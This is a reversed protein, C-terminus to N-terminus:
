RRVNAHHWPEDSPVEPGRLRDIADPHGQWPAARGRGFQLRRPYRRGSESRIVEFVLGAAEPGHSVHLPRDDGYVYIRDFPTNRALWRAVAGASQGPVFLDVAAGGRDCVLSGDGRREYAAHQDLRPAIGRPIRATLRASAFGYTLVPVGLADALPDLIAECLVTLATFTAAERPVNDIPADRTAHEIWTNGCEVLDRYKLHRGCAADLDVLVNM